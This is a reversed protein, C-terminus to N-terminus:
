KVQMRVLATRALKARGALTVLFQEMQPSFERREVDKTTFISVLFILELSYAAAHVPELSNYRSSIREALSVVLDVASYLSLASALQLVKNKWGIGLVQAFSAILAFILMRLIGFTLDLPNRLTTVRTNLSDFHWALLAAGSLIVVAALAFAKLAGRPLSVHVPHVVNWVIELLVGLDLVYTLLVMFLTMAPVLSTYPSSSLVGFAIDAVTNIGIYLTFVPFNRYHRRVLLLVFLGAEALITLVGLTAYIQQLSM